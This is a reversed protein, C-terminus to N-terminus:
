KARSAPAQESRGAADAVEAPATAEADAAAEEVEVAPEAAERTKGTAATVVDAATGTADAATESVDGALGKHLESKSGAQAQGAFGLLVLLCGAAVLGARLLM